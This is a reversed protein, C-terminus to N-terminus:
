IRTELWKGTGAAGTITFTLWLHGRENLSAEQTPLILQRKPWTLSFWLVEFAVINYHRTNELYTASLLTPDKYCCYYDYM